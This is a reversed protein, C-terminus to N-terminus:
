INAWRGTRSCYKDYEREDFMERDEDYCSGTEMYMTYLEDEYLVVFTDFDISTNM